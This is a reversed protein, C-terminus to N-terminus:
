ILEDLEEETLIRFKSSLLEVAEKKLQESPTKDTIVGLDRYPEGIFGGTPMDVVELGEKIALDRIMSHVERIQMWSEDSNDFHVCYSLEESFKM